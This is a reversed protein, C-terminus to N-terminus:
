FTLLDLLREGASTLQWRGNRRAVLKGCPHAQQEAENVSLLRFRSAGQVAQLEAATRPVLRFPLGHYNLAIEYGAVASKGGAPGPQVLQPYRRVWALDTSRVLVRCLETQETILRALNFGSRLRLQDRFVPFPDMAIFNRGNFEGHDNRQGPFAKKQWATFRDSVRFGLEFHLHAREKSIGERTNASHGLTGIVQGSTVSQGTALGPAIQRLHAYTSYIEIGDVRHRLVLYRGFNSLAPNSSIYAVTGAATARVDDTPEGQKDRRIARIDWGEHLQQGETRVCGFSGSRWPKGVTGVFFRAEGDPEFLSTNATPLHFPQEALPSEGGVWAWVALLVVTARNM